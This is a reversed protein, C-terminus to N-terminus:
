GWYLSQKDNHIIYRNAKIHASVSVVAVIVYLFRYWAYNICGCVTYPLDNSTIHRKTKRQFNNNHVRQYSATTWILLIWKHTKIVRCCLTESVPDTDTRLHPPPLCGRQQIWTWLISFVLLEGVKRECSVSTMSFSFILPFCLCSPSSMLSFTSPPLCTSPCVCFSVSVSVSPYVALLTIEFRKKYPSYALINRLTM